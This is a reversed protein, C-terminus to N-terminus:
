FEQLETEVCQLTFFKEDARVTNFGDCKSCPFGIVHYPSKCLSNCDRCMVNVLIDQYREPMPNNQIQKKYLKWIPSLDMLSGYCIPCYFHSNALLRDFCSKHLLHHCPPIQCPERSTHLDEQCVPCNAHSMKEICKHSPQLSVPLCMECKDCHFFKDEGGLRCLGCGKCHYQGKEEDFLVCISCFYEGFQTNCQVCINTIGDHQYKCNLCILAKIDKLKAKHSQIENHCQLCGFVENCCSTKIQCKRHYHTCLTSAMKIKMDFQFSLEFLMVDKLVFDAFKLTGM